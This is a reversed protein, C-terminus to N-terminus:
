RKLEEMWRETRQAAEAAENAASEIKDLRETLEDIETNHDHASPGDQAAEARDLLMNLYQDATLRSGEHEARQADKMENFRAATRERVSITTWETM